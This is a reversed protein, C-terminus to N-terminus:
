KKTGVGAWIGAGLPGNPVDAPEDPDPRWENVWVVGPDLLDLGAFFREIESRTRVTGPTSTLRRYVDNQPTMPGGDPWFSETATHSLVVYSGPALAAVFQAVADDAQADDPVFHLVAALLLGVPQDFDLLRSV